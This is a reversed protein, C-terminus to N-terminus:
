GAGWVRGVAGAIRGSMRLALDRAAAVAAGEADLEAVIAQQIPLSPLAIPISAIASARLSPYSQDATLTRADVQCLQYYVFAPEAQAADCIIGALHSAVYAPEAMVVRHNLFTSAGSKPFLITGAPFLRLRKEAVAKDNVQDRTGRFAASRHIAGVDATRIFPYQGDEFYENGQPASNGAQVTAFKGLEVLDWKPDVAIRPRWNDAVARCGNIVRQYGEIETVLERQVELPPLPIEYKKLLTFHRRYGNNELPKNRLIHYLFWPDLDENTRLIKIGDAGQAFPVDVLKTACTHDGFIVLPQDSFVLAEADNTYGAIDSQSQDIIPYLGAPKFASKPIKAPPTVTDILNSIPYRPYQSHVVEREYYNEGDM